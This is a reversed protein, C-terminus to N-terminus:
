IKGPRHEPFLADYRALMARAEARLVEHEHPSRALAEVVEQVATEQEAAPLRAIGWYCAARDMAAELADADTLTVDTELLPQAFLARAEVESLGEPGFGRAADGAAGDLQFAPHALLGDFDLLPAGPQQAARREEPLMAAWYPEVLEILTEFEVWEEDSAPEQGLLHVALASRQHGREAPPLAFFAWLLRTAELVALVDEPADDPREKLAFADAFEIEYARLLPEAFLVLSEFRLGTEGAVLGRARLPADVASGGPTPAGSDEGLLTLDDLAPSDDPPHGLPEADPADDHDYMVTPLRPLRDEVRAARRPSERGRTKGSTRHRGARPRGLSGRLIDQIEPDPEARGFDEELEVLTVEPVPLGLARAFGGVVLEAVLARAGQGAGKFKVVFLGGEETEVVAPLSGGERLPAVYRAAAYAPPTLVSM